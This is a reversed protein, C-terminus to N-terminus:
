CISHLIIGCSVSLNLSEVEGPMEIKIEKTAFSILEKSLGEAESGFMLLWPSTPTFEKLTTKARPLTAVRQHHAFLEKLDSFDKIQVVPMKWLTGVSARICKPNYIDVSEGYLVIGDVGFAASTRLITGLNGVDKINELLVVKKVKSLASKDYIKQRAVAVIRPISDTTSIKKMVPETVVIGDSTPKEDLWFVNELEIGANMAGEVAKFGELLFKGSEDRYKRQALKATEKILDNNVSTIKEVM